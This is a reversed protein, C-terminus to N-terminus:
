SLASLGRHPAFFYRKAGRTLVYGDDHQSTVTLGRVFGVNVTQGISWAQKAPARRVPNPHIAEVTDYFHPIQM